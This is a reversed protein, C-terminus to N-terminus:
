VTVPMVVYLFDKGARILGPKTADSLECVVEPEEIVRLMDLLYEPNFGINVPEGQYTVTLNVEADGAEPTSSTICLKDPTISFLVGRSQENSLLAAKRVASRLGDSPIQIKKDAGKPIVDTYKPFRGQVRNSILEAQNTWAVIQNATFAVQVDEDADHIFRELVTMAKIPVIGGNQSDKETPKVQGDVQALRRGDTAVLRLKNGQQEWLVGNIAYRTNERAAAFSSLHILRKLLAAKIKFAPTEQASAIVPFDQPDMSVIHFRSDHGVVELADQQTGLDVTEDTSEHLIGAIRAAPVVVEGPEDIKVQLVALTITMESDTAVVTLKDQDAEAQIKACQLVPKPTRSPVISSALQVAEHLATRNCKVKM